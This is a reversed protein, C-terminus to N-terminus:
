AGYAYALRSIRALPVSRYSVEVELLIFTPSLGEDQGDVYVYTASISRSLQQAVPDDVLNGELDVLEGPGEEYGDYDDMNDFGGRVAEGTEPGTSSAGDPDAFPKSLIEEMLEGALGVAMTQRMQIQETNAATSFPMTIATIAMLLIASALLAEIFTFGGSQRHQRRM